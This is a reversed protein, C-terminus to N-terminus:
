FHFNLGIRVLHLRLDQTMTEIYNFAPPAFSSGANFNNVYTTQGQDTYHYTIRASLRRSFRHEIGGGVIFGDMTGSARGSKSYGGNSVLDAGFDARAFAWGGDAFFLTNGAVVGIRGRLSYMHKPDVRNTYTYSLAPFPPTSLPGRTSVEAGNLLTFDAEVGLLVRGTQYNYGIQAGFNADDLSQSAAFNSTVNDRLSQTETAWSGGLVTATHSRASTYGTSVGVYAGTWDADQAVAPTAVIWGAVASFLIKNAKM